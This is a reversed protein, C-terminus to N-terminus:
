IFISSSRLILDEQKSSSGIWFTYAIEETEWSSTDPNYRSLDEKKVEMSIKKKEGPELYVKQFVRLLKVPRETESNEFGIYLQAVEEGSVKGTNELEFSVLACGGGGPTEVRLNSYAFSTYSLGFGFPFAAQLNKRDFLTYGHYYGYEIEDVQYSFFPLDNADVPVTFPLKGSPNVEGFLIRALATGGEMGPYWVMLIAAVNEKWEEVTVASGGVLAVVSNKNVKAIKNIMRIDDDKLAISERDGGIPSNKIRKKNNINVIYEGEDNHRYGAVIIVADADKAKAAASDTNKGNDYVLQVGEGLYKKIGEIFNVVYPPRVRSSGHDGINAVEALKGVLAIKKIKAKDLPLINNRNQLLVMSKEAAERALETHERCAIQSRDYECLDQARTFSLVKRLIRRVSEDVDEEKILGKKLAKKLKRKRYKRTFPMEVDMGANVAAIGDRVGWLFDSLTFGDFGWEDKLIDRLLYSSQCCHGGRFKNYAGMVSAAGEDICRKFHPLYVERLTREDMQVDVRFRSNEISNAAYHKICAMVNHRQVGRTLAAGMEGLLHPDEGYTEQARGWAPHRLLNICVGGFYNGGHARIEKGIADGIREELGVDWSAGRAMAVPFCTSRGCVVGRPGDVFKVPPIGLRKVGGANWPRYNYKFGDLVFASITDRNGTMIHIKEDITLEVLLRDVEKEIDDGAKKDESVGM